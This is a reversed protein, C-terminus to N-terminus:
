SVIDSHNLLHVQFGNPYERAPEFGTRTPQDIAKWYEYFRNKNWRIKMHKYLNNQFYEIRLLEHKYSMMPKSTQIPRAHARMWFDIGMLNYAKEKWFLVDSRKYTFKNTYLYNFTDVLNLYMAVNIILDECIVDM